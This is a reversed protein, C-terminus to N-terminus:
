LYTVNGDQRWQEFVDAERQPSHEKPQTKAISEWYHHIPDREKSFHDFGALHVRQVGNALLWAVTVFGASPLISKDPTWQSVLNWYFSKPVLWSHRCEWAKHEHLWLTHDCSYGGKKGNHKGHTAHITTRNGAWEDFGDTEFYNIRIVHDFSDIIRGLKQRKISPGNGVVVVNQGPLIPHKARPYPIVDQEWPRPRGHFCVVPATSPHKADRIDAKFSCVMEPAIDQWFEFKQGGEKFCKELFDQDGRHGACGEALWKDLVWRMDGSWWMMGSGMASRDNIGRYFDRLIVFRSNRAADVVVSADARIITDLDFYLTPGSFVRFLEM